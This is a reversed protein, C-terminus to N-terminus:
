ILTGLGAHWRDPEKLSKYSIKKLILAVIRREWQETCVLEIVTVSACEEAYMCARVCM